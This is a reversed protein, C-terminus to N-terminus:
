YVDRELRQFVFRRMFRTILGPALVGALHGLKAPLGPYLVRDGRRAARIIAEALEQPDMRRAADTQPPAHRAAHETRIPGPFVVTLKIGRRALAGRLGRAYVALADKSAAYVSGGPYGTAHSLSSVLVFRGGSAIRGSRLMQATMVMPTECNLTLLKLYAAEPIREFRGTASTGANHIVWDFPPERELDSILRDVESREGLDALIPTMGTVADVARRDVATVAAGAAVLRMALQRGLGAAAGTVLARM